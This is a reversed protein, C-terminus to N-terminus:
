SSALASIVARARQALAYLETDKPNLMAQASLMNAQTPQATSQTPFPSATTRTKKQPPPNPADERARAAVMEVKPRGPAHVDEFDALQEAEDEDVGWPEPRPEADFVEETTEDGGQALIVSSTRLIRRSEQLVNVLHESTPGTGPNWLNEIIGRLAELNKVHPVPMVPLSEEKMLTALDTQAELIDQQAQELNAQARQLVKVAKEGAEVTRRFRARAQDMRQGMPQALKVAAEEKQVEEELIRICREPM